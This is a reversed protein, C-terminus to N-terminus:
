KTHLKGRESKVFWCGAEDKTINQQSMKASTCHRDRITRLKNVSAKGKSLKILRDFAKDKAVRLLICVLTDLRRNVTGKLYDYKLVRHFAEVFMNTSIGSGTCFCLAWQEKRAIYAKEFYKAFERTKPLKRLECLSGELLREFTLKDPEEMLVKLQKYVQSEINSDGIKRLQSRWSCDLHWNCLLQKPENGFSNVWAKYYQNADDSMFYQPKLCLNELNDRIANLFCTIRTEDERNSICWATPFGEGFDDIVLLTILPFKYANTGHTADMCVVRKEAFAQLVEKQLPTQIVLLFDDDKLNNGASQGQFKCFLLSSSANEDPCSSDKM